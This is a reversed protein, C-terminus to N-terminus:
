LTQLNRLEKEASVVSSNDVEVPQERGMVKIYLSEQFILRISINDKNRLVVHAEEISLNKCNISSPEIARLQRIVEGDSSHVKGARKMVKEHWSTLAENTANKFQEKAHALDDTVDAIAQQISATLEDKQKLLETFKM